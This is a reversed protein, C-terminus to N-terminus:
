VLEAIVASIVDGEKSKASEKLVKIDSEVKALAEQISTEGIKKEVDLAERAQAQAKAKAEEKLNEAQAKANELIEGCEADAAKLLAEAESETEKITKITEEVM